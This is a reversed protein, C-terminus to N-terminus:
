VAVLVMIEISKSAYDLIFVIIKLVTHQICAHSVLVHCCYLTLILVNLMVYVHILCQVEKDVTNKYETAIQSILDNHMIREETGPM